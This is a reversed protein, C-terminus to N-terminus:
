TKHIIIWRVCQCVSVSKIAQRNIVELFPRKLCAGVPSVGQKKVSDEIHTPEALLELLPLLTAGKGGLSLVSVCM